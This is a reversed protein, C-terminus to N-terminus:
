FQLGNNHETTVIADLAHNSANPVATALAPPPGLRLDRRPKCRRHPLAAPPLLAACWKEM